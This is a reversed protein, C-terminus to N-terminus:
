AIFDPHDARQATCMGEWVQVIRQHRNWRQVEEMGGDGPLGPCVDLYGLPCGEPQRLDPQPLLSLSSSPGHFGEAQHWRNMWSHKRVGVQKGTAAESYLLEYAGCTSQIMRSDASWDLHTIYSSHGKFTAIRKYGLLVDYIYIYNDHSGAALKTGDPSYRIHPLLCSPSLSCTIKMERTCTEKRHGQCAERIEQM